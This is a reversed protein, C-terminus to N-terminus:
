QNWNYHSIGALLHKAGLGLMFIPFIMLFMPDAWTCYRHSLIDVVMWGAVVCSTLMMSITIGLWVM